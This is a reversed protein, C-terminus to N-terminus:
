KNGGLVKVEKRILYEYGKTEKVIVGIVYGVNIEPKEEHESVWYYCVKIKDDDVDIIKLEVKAIKQGDKGLRELLDVSTVTGKIRM